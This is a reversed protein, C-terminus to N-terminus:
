SILEALTEYNGPTSADPFTVILHGAGADAMARLEKEITAPGGAAYPAPTHPGLKHAAERDTKGLAVIGGWSLEVARGNAAARVLRADREFEEPTCGWANWGDAHRGAAALVGASRGGVWVRPPPDCRPSAPLDRLQAFDDVHGIAAESLYRHVIEVTSALQAVRAPGEWFPLGFADNEPRSANDGSGIAIVLRGPFIAGVTAAMKALVAPHRLTSRTVLTGIQIRQTRAAVHALATWGELFPRNKGGSLPWLHDFVWISDLGAREARVAGDIVRRPDGTFQPLTVGRKVRSM